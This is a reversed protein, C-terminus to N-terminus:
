RVVVSILLRNDGADRIDHVETSFDSWAESISQWWRRIGDHGRFVNEDGEIAQELSPRYECDATWCAVFAERDGRNFAEHGRRVLEKASEQSMAGRLIEAKWPIASAVGQNSSLGSSCEEEECPRCRRNRRRGFCSGMTRVSRSM